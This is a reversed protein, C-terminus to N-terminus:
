HNFMFERSSLVAWFMDELVIRRQDAPAENLVPLLQALEADSPYRSLASLYLEEVIRYNPMGSTVLSALKGDDAALKKLITEGNSLHLAQVLSPENSRECQCTVTRQHRGFTRLFRSVVASDYLEIARTGEPYFETKVFDAGSFEIETFLSPEDAVQSIADLAVEAMLRKPFYHSFNRADGAGESAPTSSRAYAASQLILRMLAKLDYDHEVLYDALATLLEENSAPNSLRLDDIPEVLGVGFFNAWVRNAITRSFYPNDPSTLWQALELRRDATADFPLPTGDLPTPPQPKGTLPQILDGKTEVYVTRIGDGSRFDGGWGKARVRAFLNAFAYYQNNTWKELPHNHCKACGISLGLFAQSVNEAMTEPDQHLAYFNTAGNEVSSGQATVIQTVFQDWPTNAAVQKHIWEYYAKVAAPRLKQGNILLLDSWKYTWYDVFEPRALLQEIVKDRKDPAQDELFARVEEPKPSTGITDFYVRRLFEADGALEAPQLHLSQLKALVLDDIFNRRPEQAYRDAPIENGYPVTVRGVAIQSAYWATIAGEGSGMITVAGQESIQCVTENTSTFKAWRTVDRVTGDSFKALVIVQETQGTQLRAIEPLVSVETVHTEDAAPGPAGQAIWEVLTRYEQSDTDFRLGGKHPVAGTPKILLLSTAPDSLEVRRGRAQKVIAHYDSTSDYGRLSLKFGGKGALAGHCAGSNCGAKALVPQVDNRFSWVHPQDFGHVTVTAETSQGGSKATVTATGNGTPFLTQGQVRVVQENTSTLEADAIQSTFQGNVQRQVLVMQRAERGTLSVQGPLLRFTEEAPLVSAWLVCGLTLTRIVFRPLLDRLTM